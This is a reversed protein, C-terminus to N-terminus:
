AARELATAVPILTIRLGEWADIRVAWIRVAAVHAPDDGPLVGADVIGDLAAKASPMQAGADTLWRRDKHFPVVDVTVPSEVASLGAACRLAALRWLATQQGTVFGSRRRANAALRLLKNMTLPRSEPDTRVDITLPDRSPTM